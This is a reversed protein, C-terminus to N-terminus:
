RVRVSLVLVNDPGLTQLGADTSSVLNTAQLRYLGKKAFVLTHATGTQWPSALALAPGSTQVVAFPMPCSVRIELKTGRTVTLTKTPGFPQSDASGWVHCGRLAHVITLRLTPSALAAPAAALAISAVALILLRRM